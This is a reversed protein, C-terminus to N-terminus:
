RLVHIDDSGFKPGNQMSAVMPPKFQPSNMVLCESEIGVGVM